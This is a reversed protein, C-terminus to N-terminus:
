NDSEPPAPNRMKHIMRNWYNRNQYARQRPYYKQPVFGKEALFELIAEAAIRHAIENPHGDIKPMVELRTSSMGSFAPLLDLAPIDQDALIKMTRTHIDQFPYRGEALDWSLGPFLVATFVVGADRCRRNFHDLAAVFRRHGSYVPDHITRYYAIHARNVRIDQRKQYLWRALHSGRYLPATWGTPKSPLLGDRWARLENVAVWDETDNLCIGLVIIRVPTNLAQNLFEEQMFTSTGGKAFVHVEVPPVGNNMNLLRELRPGYSDDPQVGWGNSISDGVVGIRLVNEEGNTWPHHREKETYFIKPSRDFDPGMDEGDPAPPGLVRLGIEAAMLCLFTAVLFTALGFALSRARSCAPASPITSQAM